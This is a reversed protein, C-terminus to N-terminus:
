LAFLMVSNCASAYTKIENNFSFDKWIFYMM